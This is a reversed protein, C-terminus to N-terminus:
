IWTSFQYFISKFNNEEEEEGKSSAQMEASSSGTLRQM